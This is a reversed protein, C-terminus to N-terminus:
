KESRHSATPSCDFLFVGPESKRAIDRCSNGLTPLTWDKALTNHRTPESTSLLTENPVRFAARYHKQSPHKHEHRPHGQYQQVCPVTQSRINQKSRAEIENLGDISM